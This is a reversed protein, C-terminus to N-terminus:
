KLKIVKRVAQAQAQAQAERVFYVGPALGRVNNAGPTLDIVKRGGIDLLSRAAQPKHGTAEPLFLVNRVATAHM